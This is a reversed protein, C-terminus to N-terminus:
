LHHKFPGNLMVWVAQGLLLCAKWVTEEGKKTTQAMRKRVHVDNQANPGFCGRLCKEVHYVAGKLLGRDYQYHM